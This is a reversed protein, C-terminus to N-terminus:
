PLNRLVSLQRELECIRVAMERKEKDLGTIVLLANACGRELQAVRATLTSIEESSVNRIVPCQDPFVKLGIRDKVDPAEDYRTWPGTNCYWYRDSPRIIEDAQLFRHGSPLLPISM